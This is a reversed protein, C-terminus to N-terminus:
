LFVPLLALVVTAPGLTLIVPAPSSRTRRRGRMPWFAAELLLSVCIASLGIVANLVNVDPLDDSNEAINLAFLLVAFALLLGM